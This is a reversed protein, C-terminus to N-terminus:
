DLQWENGRKLLSGPEQVFRRLRDRSRAATLKTTDAVSPKLPSVKGTPPAQEYDGVLVLTARGRLVMRFRDTIRVKTGKRMIFEAEVTNRSIGAVSFGRADRAAVIVSIGTHKVGQEEAGQYEDKAFAEAIDASATFSSMKKLEFTEAEMLGRVEEETRNNLGRYLMPVSQGSEAVEIMAELRHNNENRIEKCREWSATFDHGVAKAGAIATSDLYKEAHTLQSTTMAEAYAQPKKTAIFPPPWTVGSVIEPEASPDTLLGVESVSEVEPLESFSEDHLFSSERNQFGERFGKVFAEEEESTAGFWHPNFDELAGMYDEEDDANAGFTAGMAKADSVWASPAYMDSKHEYVFEELARRFDEEPGALPETSAARMVDEPTVTLTDPDYGDAVTLVAPYDAAILAAALAYAPTETEEGTANEVVRELIKDSHEKFLDQLERPKLKELRDVKSAEVREKAVEELRAKYAATAVRHVAPIGGTTPSPVRGSTAVMQEPAVEFAQSLDEDAADTGIREAARRAGDPLPGAYHQFYRTAEMAPGEVAAKGLFPLARVSSIMQELGVKELEREFNGHRRALEERGLEKYAERMATSVAPIHFLEPDASDPGGMSGDQLESVPRSRLAAREAVKERAAVILDTPVRGSYSRILKVYERHIAGDNADRSTRLSDIAAETNEWGYEDILDPLMKMPLPGLGVAAKLGQLARDKSQSSVRSAPEARSRGLGGGEDTWRGEDDRPQNPDWLLAASLGLAEKAEGDFGTALVALVREDGGDIVETHEDLAEEESIATLTCRCNSAFIGNGIVWGHSSEFDFVHGSYDFERVEIVQDLSVDSAFRQLLDTVLSVDAAIHKASRELLTADLKAAPGVRLPQLPAPHGAVLPGCLDGGGVGRDTTGGPRLVLPASESLRPETMSDASLSPRLHGGCPEPLGEASGSDMAHGVGPRLTHPLVLGLDSAGQGRAAERRRALEGYSGVVDVEGVFSAAEGHFDDGCPRTIAPQSAHALSGFVEEAKTPADNEDCTSLTRESKTGYCILEDGQRIGCAPVLGSSTLVPHNATVSLRRGGKTILEIAKGEYWARSAGIITGQMATGPLFCQYGAPPGLREWTPDDWRMALGHMEAHEPRTRDDQVARWVWYPRSETVGLFIAKRGEGYASLINTRFVNELYWPTMAETLALGNAELNYEFAEEFHGLDLGYTLAETLSDQAIEIVKRSAARAFTFARTRETIPLLDFQARTLIERAYFEDIVDWWPEAEFDVQGNGDPNLLEDRPSRADLKTAGRASAMGAATARMRTAYILRALADTLTEEAKGADGRKVAPGIAAVARAARVAAVASFDALQGKPVHASLTKTDEVREAAVHERAVALTLEGRGAAERTARWLAEWEAIQSETPM